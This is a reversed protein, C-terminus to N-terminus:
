HAPAADALSNGYTLVVVAIVLVALAAILIRTTRSHCGLWERLVLGTLSSFLVLMIMHIAWSTFKYDGMRVHGLGYFFFQGYWLCGTLAAMLYNLTLPSTATETKVLAYEGVTGDRRHLWLCYFLTTVFAGGCSFIYVVNGEFQGAGHKAAVEAIPQGASLSLGFVASFLGALICLPLGIRLNFTTDGANQSKERLDLEKLRGALGSILIGIAGLTVGTLVWGIGPKNMLEQMKGDMLPPLLTGMVCSIGIALAYTLSFGIHRIALGFASGGIGYLAGYSFSLLMAQPPAEALVQLLNPITLFAVIFPLLGWCVAAQALWYTQWAWGKTNKQPTYCLAASSAGIAHLLVGLIPNAIIPDTSM